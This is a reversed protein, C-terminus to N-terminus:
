RLIHIFFALTLEQNTEQHRLTRLCSLSCDNVQASALKLPCDTEADQDDEDNSSDDASGNSATLNDFLLFLSNDM